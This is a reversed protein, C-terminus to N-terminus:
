SYVVRIDSGVINLIRGDSALNFVPLVALARENSLASLRRAEEFFGELNARNSETM